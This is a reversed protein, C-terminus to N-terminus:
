FFLDFTLETTCLAIAGPSIKMTWFKTVERSSGVCLLYTNWVEPSIFCSLQKSHNIDDLM